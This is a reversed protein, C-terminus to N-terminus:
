CRGWKDREWWAFLEAKVMLCVFHQLWKAQIRLNVVKGCEFTETVGTWIDEMLHVPQPHPPFSLNLLLRQNLDLDELEERLGKEGENFIESSHGGKRTKEAEGGMKENAAIKCKNGNPFCLDFNFCSIM